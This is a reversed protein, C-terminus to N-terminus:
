PHGHDRKTTKKARIIIQWKGLDEYAHSSGSHNGGSDSGFEPPLWIVSSRMATFFFWSSRNPGENLAMMRLATM